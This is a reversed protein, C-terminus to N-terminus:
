ASERREAGAFGSFIAGTSVRAQRHKVEARLRDRLGRLKHIKTGLASEVTERQLDELNKCSRKTQMELRELHALVGSSLLFPLRVLM